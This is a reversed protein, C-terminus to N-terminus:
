RGTLLFDTLAILSKHARTRLSVNTARRYGHTAITGSSHADLRSSRFAVAWAPHADLVRMPGIVVPRVHASSFRRDGLASPARYGFPYDICAEQAVRLQGNEDFQRLVSPRQRDIMPPAPAAVFAAEDRGVKRAHAAVNQPYM